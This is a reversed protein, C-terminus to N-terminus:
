PLREVTISVEVKYATQVTGDVPGKCKAPSCLTDVIRISMSRGYPDVMKYPTPSPANEILDCFASALAFTTFFKYATCKSDAARKGIGQAVSGSQGPRMDRDVSISIGDVWGSWGHFSFPTGTPPTITVAIPLAAM